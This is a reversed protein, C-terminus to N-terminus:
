LNEEIWKNFHENDMDGYSNYNNFKNLLVIVEERNWNEKVPKITITNDSAIKIRTLLETDPRNQKYYEEYEVIVEDIGGLECYKKIFSDSPRPSELSKDTSVIIKKLRKLVEIDFKDGKSFKSVIDIDLDLYWDGEKIEEDSLIYLHQNIVNTSNPIQAPNSYKDFKIRNKDKIFYIYSEKETPLMVVKHKKFM